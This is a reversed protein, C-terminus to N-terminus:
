RSGQRSDMRKMHQQASKDRRQQLQQQRWESLRKGAVPADRPSYSALRDFSVTIHTRACSITFFIGRLCALQQPLAEGCSKPPSMSGRSIQWPWSPSQQNSDAMAHRASRSPVICRMKLSAVYLGRPFYTKCRNSPRLPQLGTLIETSSLNGQALSLPNGM